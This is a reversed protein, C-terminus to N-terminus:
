IDLIRSWNLKNMNIPTKKHDIAGSYLAKIMNNYKDFAILRKYGEYIRWIPFDIISNNGTMWLLSSIISTLDVTKKIQKNKKQRQKKDYSQKMLFIKTRQNGSYEIESKEPIANIKKIFNRIILYCDYDIIAGTESRFVLKNTKTHQVCQFKQGTFFKLADFFISSEIHVKNSNIISPMVHSRKSSIEKQRISMILDWEDIDEYWINNEFFLEDAKSEKSITLVGVYLNYLDEGIDVIDNIKPHKIKLNKNIVYDRGSFLFIRDM